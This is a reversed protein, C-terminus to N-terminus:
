KEGKFTIIRVVLSFVVAIIIAIVMIAGPNM